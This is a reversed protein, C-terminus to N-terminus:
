SRVASVSNALGNLGLLGVIATTLSQSTLSDAFATIEGQRLYFKSGLEINSFLGALYELIAKYGNLKLNANNRLIFKNSNRSFQCLYEYELDNAMFTLRAYGSDANIHLLRDKTLQVGYILYALLRLITTKGSGNPGILLNLGPQFECTFRELIGVNEVELRKLQM